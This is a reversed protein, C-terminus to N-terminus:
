RSYTNEVVKDWEIKSENEQKKAGMRRREEV